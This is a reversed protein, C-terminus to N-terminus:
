SWSKKTAVVRLQDIVRRIGSVSSASRLISHREHEFGITGSLTAEGNRVTTTVHSPTGTGVRALKQTINRLLTKDPIVNRLTM